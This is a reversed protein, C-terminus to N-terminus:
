QEVNNQMYCNKKINYYVLGKEFKMNKPSYDIPRKSIHSKSFLRTLNVALKKITEYIDFSFIM